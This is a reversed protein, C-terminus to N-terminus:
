QTIHCEEDVVEAHPQNFLGITVIAAQWEVKLERGEALELV